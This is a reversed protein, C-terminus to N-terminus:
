TLIIKIAYFRRKFEDTESRAACKFCIDGLRIDMECDNVDNALEQIARYMLKWVVPLEHIPVEQPTEDVTTTVLAVFGQGQISAVRLTVIALDTLAKIRLIIVWALNILVGSM